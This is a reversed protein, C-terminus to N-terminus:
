RSPPPIRLASPIEREGALAQVRALASRWISHVGAARYVRLQLLATEYDREAYGDLRSVVLLAKQPEVGGARGTELLWDTYARCVELLLAPVRSREALTVAEEFAAEAEDGRGRAAAVAGKALLVHGAVLPVVGREAWGAMAQAADAGATLDGAALRSRVEILRARAVWDGMLPYREPLQAIAEAALHGAREWKGERAAWEARLVLATARQEFLDARAQVVDQVEALLTEADANRGIAAWLAVRALRANALLAPDATQTLLEEMRPELALAAQTELMNLRSWVANYRTRLESGVDNLQRFRRAARELHDLAEAYRGHRAELGALNNDLGALGVIDATNELALRAQVFHERAEDMGHRLAVATGLALEARGQDVLAEDARSSAFLRVAEQLDATAADIDGQRFRVAGMVVLARARFAPEGGLSPQGLLIELQHKAADLEHEYVDIRARQLRIRPEERLEADATEILKRAVDMQQALLAAETQQMLLTVGPQADPAPAPALGLSLALRDAALRAAELVDDAEASVRRSSGGRLTRLAVHWGNATTHARADIVMNAGSADVLQSIEVEGLTPAHKRLLAIVTDGPVMAQGAAAMRTAILDMAGLRIWPYNDGDEVFVPLLLAIEGGVPVGVEVMHSAYPRRSLHVVGATLVAVLLACLLLPAWRSTRAQAPSASDEVAEVPSVWRYGLGRFTKVYRPDDDDDGLSQRLEFVARGLVSDSLHITKWVAAMMEDRSVVRDRHKMLYVLCDFVKRRLSVEVDGHLLERTAVALRFGNFRYICNSPADSSSASKVSSSRMNAM